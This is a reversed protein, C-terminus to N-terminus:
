APEGAEVVLRELVEPMALGSERDLLDRFGPSSLLTMIAEVVYNIKHRVSEATKMAVETKRVEAKLMRQMGSASIRTQTRPRGRSKSRASKNDRMRQELIRRLSRLKKGSLGHKVASELQSQIDSDSRVIEIADDVSMIGSEVAALLRAEDKELLMGLMSIYNSTVGIMQAIQNDSLKRGRLSEIERILEIPRPNRRAVNEVVSLVMCDQPSADTVFAPIETQRLELFAEMRGQGCILDYCTEGDAGTRRSVTIPRKLGIERINEIIERHKAKNRVRPNVVRIKSIPVFEVRKHVLRTSTM